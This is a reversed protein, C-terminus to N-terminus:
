RTVPVGDFPAVEPINISVTRSTAPPAPLKFWLIAPSEYLNISARDASSGIPAALWKGQNDKLIGLQQSTADDIVSIQDLDISHTGGEGTYTLQVTLVDGTVAVKNLAVQAGGPGPQTQIVALAAPAPPAAPPATEVRTVTQQEGTVSGAAEDATAQEAPQGCAALATLPLLIWPRMLGPM